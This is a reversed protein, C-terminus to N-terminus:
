PGSSKTRSWRGREILDFLMEELAHALCWYKEGRAFVAPQGCRACTHGQIHLETPRARVVGNKDM